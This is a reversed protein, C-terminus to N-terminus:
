WYGRARIANLQRVDEESLGEPPSAVGQRITLLRARAGALVDPRSGALDTHELPDRVVDFLQYTAPRDAHEQGVLAATLAPSLSSTGHHESRFSLRDDGIRLSLMDGFEAYAIPEAPAPALLDRGSVGAPVRAGALALLTPAVDVLQAPVTVEGPDSGLLELPVHTTRELLLKAQGPVLQEAHLTGGFEDLSVGYLSTLVVRRPRTGGLAELLAAIERGADAAAAVYGDHVASGVDALTRGDGLPPHYRAADDVPLPTLRERDWAAALAGEDTAELTARVSVLDLSGHVVLLRPADSAGAWWTRAAGRLAAWDSLGDASVVDFGRDVGPNAIPFRSILASHYGYYGLVQALTPV